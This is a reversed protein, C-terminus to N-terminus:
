DLNVEPAVVTRAAENWWHWSTPPTDVFLALKPRYPYIREILEYDQSSLFSSIKSNSVPPTGKIGLLLLQHAYQIHDVLPWAGEAIVAVLSGQYAFGWDAILEVAEALRPGDTWLFLTADSALHALECGAGKLKRLSVLGRVDKAQTPSKSGDRWRCRFPDALV